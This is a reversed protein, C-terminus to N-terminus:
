AEVERLQNTYANAAGQAEQLSGEKERTLKRIRYWVIFVSFTTLPLIYTLLDTFGLAWIVIRFKYSIEVKYKEDLYGPARLVIYFYYWIIPLVIIKVLTGVIPFIDAVDSAIACAFLLPWFVKKSQGTGEEYNDAEDQKIGAAGLAKNRQESQNQSVEPVATQKKDFERIQEKYEPAIYQEREWFRLTKELM